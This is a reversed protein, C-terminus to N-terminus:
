RWCDDRHSSRRTPSASRRRTRCRFGAARASRSPCPTCSPKISAPPKSTPSGNCRAADALDRVRDRHTETSAQAAAARDGAAAWSRSRSQGFPLPPEGLDNREELARRCTTAKESVRPDRPRAHRSGAPHRAPRSAQDPARRRRVAGQQRLDVRLDLELHTVRFQEINAFSHYDLGPSHRSTAGAPLPRSYVPASAALAAALALRRSSGSALARVLGATM